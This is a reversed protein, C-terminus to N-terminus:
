LKEIKKLNVTLIELLPGLPLTDFTAISERGTPASM